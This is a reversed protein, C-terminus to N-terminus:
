TYKSSDSGVTKGEGSRQVSTGNVGDRMWRDMCGYIRGGIPRCLEMYEGM